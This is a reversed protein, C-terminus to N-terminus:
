IKGNAQPYPFSVECPWVVASDVPFRFQSASATVHRQFSRLTSSGGQQEPLRRQSLWRLKPDFVKLYRNHHLHLVVSLLLQNSGAWRPFNKRPSLRKGLEQLTHQVMLASAHICPEKLQSSRAQVRKLRM